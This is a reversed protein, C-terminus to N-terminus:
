ACEFWASGIEIGEAAARRREAFRGQGPLRAGTEGAVDHFLRALHDVSGGGAKPDIAIILQGTAPPPGEADLFSSAQAAYHAGTLGAALAEVMLALAAGKADGLPVMTGALAQVPDITSEGDPGLAWGPPITTGRRKAALIQGRAVKSLSLDIVVPDDAFPFACAIPNTGFLARQAGWPAMAAPTNAVMLGVLGARALGEVILGMAGCHGSRFVGATAIGQVPATARLWKVALDLAPYAFGYQADVLCAGPRMEALTPLAQGDIKGARLQAIYSALRILGHGGHGDAEATVLARAVSCATAPSAGAGTLAAEARSLAEEFGIRITESM